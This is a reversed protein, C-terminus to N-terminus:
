ATALFIKSAPTYFYIETCAKDKPFCVMHLLTRGSTQSSFDDNLSLLEANQVVEFFHANADYFSVWKFILILKFGFM